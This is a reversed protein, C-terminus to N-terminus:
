PLYEEIDKVKRYPLDNSLETIIRKLENFVEVNTRIERLDGYERSLTKVWKDVIYQNQVVDHFIWQFYDKTKPLKNGKIKSKKEIEFIFDEITICHKKYNVEDEWKLVKILHEILPFSIDTIKSEVDSRHKAQESLFELFRM